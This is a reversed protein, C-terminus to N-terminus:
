PFMSHKVQVARETAAVITGTGNWRFWHPGELAITVEAFYVGTGTRTIGAAPYTITTVTGAPDRYKFVITSPDTVTGAFNTFTVTSRILDGVDYQQDSM